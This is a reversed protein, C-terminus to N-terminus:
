SLWFNSGFKSQNQTMTQDFCCLPLLGAVDSRSREPMASVQLAVLEKREQAVSAEVNMQLNM